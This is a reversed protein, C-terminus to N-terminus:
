NILWIAAPSTTSRGAETTLSNSSFASSAPALRQADQEVFAADFADRDGVVAAADGFVFKRERQHTVRGALDAREGLQFRDGRRPNRPSASADIADTACIAIVLRV